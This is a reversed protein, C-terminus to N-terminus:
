FKDGQEGFERPKANIAIFTTNDGRSRGGRVRGETGGEVRARPRVEREAGDSGVKANRNTSTVRSFM